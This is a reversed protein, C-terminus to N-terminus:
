QRKRIAAFSAAALTAIGALTAFAPKRSNFGTDPAALTVKADEQKTQEAEVEKEEVVPKRNIYLRFQKSVLIELEDLGDTEPIEGFTGTMDTSEEITKYLLNSLKTRFHLSGGNSPLVIYFDLEKDLNEKSIDGGNRSKVTLPMVANVYFPGEDSSYKQNSKISELLTDGNAYKRWNWYTTEESGKYPEFDLNEQADWRDFIYIGSTGVISGSTVADAIDQTSTRLQDITPTFEFGLENSGDSIFINKALEALDLEEDEDIHLEILSQTTFQTGNGAGDTIYTAAMAPASLSALGVVTSIAGIALKNKM